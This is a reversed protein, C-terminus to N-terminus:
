RRVERRGLIFFLAIAVVVVAGVVGLYAEMPFAHAGHATFWAIDWLVGVFILNMLAFAIAVYILGREPDLRWSTGWRGFAVLPERTAWWVVGWDLANIFLALGLYMLYFQDRASWDDAEGRINFHTAVREAPLQPYLYAALALLLALTVLTPAVYSWRFAVPKLERAIPTGQALGRTYVFLWAMEGILALIMVGVVIGVGTSDAIGALKLISALPILALGTAAMLAGGVRNSQDWVERSAYSYGLRVGFIPNPGVRPAFYYTALGALFLLAGVLLSFIFM